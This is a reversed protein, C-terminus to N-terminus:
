RHTWQLAEEVADALAAPSRKRAGYVVGGRCAIATRLVAAGHQAQVGLAAIQRRRFVHHGMMAAREAPTQLPALMQEPEQVRLVLVLGLPCVETHTPMPVRYRKVDGRVRQLGTTEVCLLDCAEQWLKVARDSPWVRPGNADCQVRTLNDSLLKWGRACLEAALTSKGLTSGGCIAVAKHGNPPLVCAAHLAVDGRQQLLAARVVGDLYPEMEETSVHVPAAVSIKEGGEVLFTASGPVRLLMAGRRATWYPALEVGGELRSPLDDVFLGLAEPVGPIDFGSSM